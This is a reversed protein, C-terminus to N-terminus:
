EVDAQEEEIEVERTEPLGDDMSPDDLAM